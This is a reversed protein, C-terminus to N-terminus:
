SGTVSHTLVSALYVHTYSVTCAFGTLLHPSGVVSAHFICKGLDSMFKVQSMSVISHECLSYHVYWNENCPGQLRSIRSYFRM